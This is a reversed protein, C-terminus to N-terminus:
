LFLAQVAGGYRSVLDVGLSLPLYARGDRFPYAVGWGEARRLVDAALPDPLFCADELDSAFRLTIPVQLADEDGGVCAAALRDLAARDIPMREGECSVCAPDPDARLDRLSRTRVVYGANLGRYEHELWKAISGDRFM